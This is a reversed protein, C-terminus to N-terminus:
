KTANQKSFMSIFFLIASGIDILQWTDKSLYFPFIPNFLVAMIGFVWAWGTRQKKYAIYATYGAIIMVAWRLFQYYGYPNDALAIFLIVAGLIKFWNNKLFQNM